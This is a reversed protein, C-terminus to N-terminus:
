VKTDIVLKGWQEGREMKRLQEVLGDLPAVADIIPVIKHLAVFDLMAQFDKPSGMTSGHISIQRWFLIQPNLEPIKGRTGGYFVMRGGPRMIKSVATFGPGAAGDVFVDIGDSLAQLRTTWDPQRYDFGAIAGMRIAEDLCSQRSSSVYVEAGLALAFQLALSAVGGGVGSILVKDSASAEGKVMLARWATLGALALAAAEAFSLHAPIPFLNEEPVAVREAFSGNRPMGMPMYAESQVREDNGWFFGPQILVRRGECLGAGDSGLIVPTKIRPYLGQIIYLDRHNLAAAELEVIKEGEKAQPEPYDSILRPCKGIEEFLMARM